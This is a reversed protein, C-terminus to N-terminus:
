RGIILKAIDESFGCELMYKYAKISQEYRHNKYLTSLYEKDSSSGLYVKTGPNDFDYGNCHYSVKNGRMYVGAYGTTNNYYIGASLFSNIRKPLLICTEPSYLRANNGILDKDLGYGDINNDEFWKAFTQFNHWEDCVKVDNYSSDFGDNIYCRKLMKYWVNYAHTQKKNEKAKYRGVGLYGIGLISKAYPNKATGLRFQVYQIERTYKYEDQYEIILSNCNNYEIIKAMSGDNMIKTEGIRSM